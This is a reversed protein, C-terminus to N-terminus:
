SAVKAFAYPGEPIVGVRAGMPLDGFFAGLAADPESFHRGALAGM